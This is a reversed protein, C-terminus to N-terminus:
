NGDPTEVSELGASVLEEDAESLDLDDAEAYDTVNGHTKHSIDIAPRM